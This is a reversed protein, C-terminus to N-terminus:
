HSINTTASYAAKAQAISAARQEQQKLLETYVTDAIGFGGADVVSQAMHENLTHRFTEEAFGGDFESETNSKMLEMMQYVFFAEFEKSKELLKSKDADSVLSTTTDALQRAQVHAMSATIDPTAFMSM